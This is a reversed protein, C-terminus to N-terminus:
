NMKFDQESEIWTKNMQMWMCAPKTWKYECAILGQESANVHLWAKNVQSWMCECEIVQTWKCDSEIGQTGQM